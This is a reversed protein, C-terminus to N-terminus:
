KRVLYEMALLAANKAGIASMEMASASMEVANIYFMGDDLVFPPFEEPPRYEPYALWNVALNVSTDRSKFMVRKQEETLPHDSTFVKWLRVPEVDLPKLFNGVEKDPVDCPVQVQMSNFDVPGSFDETTLVLLPFSRSLRGLGILEPNIEGKVFTAVTNHYPTRTPSTYVPTPFGEFQVRPVSVGHPDPTNLPFAVIVADVEQTASLGSDLSYDLTYGIRGGDKVNRTVRTVRASHFIAGSSQLANIPIQKNGGVVNWLSNDEAGAMSVLMTFANVQQGQGYNCRLAGSVLEDTIKKSWGQQRSFDRASVQTAQYLQDGGGVARLMDPVTAFSRGDSQLRYIGAFKKITSRVCLMTKLLSLGYIYLMKLTNWLSYYGTHLVLKNGDFIGLPVTPSNKSEQTKLGLTPATVDYMSIPRVGKCLPIQLRAINCSLALVGSDKVHIGEM